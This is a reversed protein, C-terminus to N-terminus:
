VHRMANAVSRALQLLGSFSEPGGAFDQPHSHDGCQRRLLEGLAQLDSKEVAGAQAALRLANPNAPISVASVELLEQELFRRRWPTQDNGNEWRRPQFGVSVANLFGARYLDYALKALPNIETAFLVRLHLRDGIVEVKLARGLTHLIDGYQHANQFVPNRRYAALDWGRALIVEGARDLTEDSAIFDLVPPPVAPTTVPNPETAPDPSSASGGHTRTEVLLAGRLGARGDPLIVTRGAFENSVINMNM